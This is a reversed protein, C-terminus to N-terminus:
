INAILYKNSLWYLGGGTGERLGKRPHMESVRTTVQSRPITLIEPVAPM